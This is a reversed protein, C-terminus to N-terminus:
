APSEIWASTKGPTQRAYIDWHGPNRYHVSFGLPHHPQAEDFFHKEATLERERREDGRMKEEITLDM